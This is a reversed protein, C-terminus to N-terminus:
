QDDAERQGQQQNGGQGFLVRLEQCRRRSARVLPGLELGLRWPLELDWSWGLAWAIHDGDPVATSTATQFKKPAKSKFSELRASCVSARERCFNHNPM